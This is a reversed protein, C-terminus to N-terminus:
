ALTRGSKKRMMLIFIATILGLIAIIDLIWYVFNDNPYVTITKSNSIFGIQNNQKDFIITKDHFFIDGLIIFDLNATPVGEIGLICNRRNFSGSM